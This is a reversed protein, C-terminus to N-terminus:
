NKNYYFIYLMFKGNSASLVNWLTISVNGSNLEMVKEEGCFSARYGNFLCDKNGRGQLGQLWYNTKQWQIERNQINWKFPTMPHAGKQAWSKENLMINELNHQLMYWYKIALYYEMTQTYWMKNIWENMQHVNLNEWRKSITSNDM